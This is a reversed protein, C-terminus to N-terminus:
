PLLFNLYKSIKLYFEEFINKYVLNRKILIYMRSFVTM